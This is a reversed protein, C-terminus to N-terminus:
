VLCHTASMWKGPDLRGGVPGVFPLDPSEHVIPVPCHRVRHRPQHLGLICVRDAAQIPKFGHRPAAREADGSNAAPPQRALILKRSYVMCNFGFMRKKGPDLRGVVPGARGVRAARVERPDHVHVVAVHEGVELGGGVM